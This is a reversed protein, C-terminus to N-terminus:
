QGRQTEHDNINVDVLDKFMGKIIKRTKVEEQLKELVESTTLVEFEKEQVCTCKKTAIEVTKKM